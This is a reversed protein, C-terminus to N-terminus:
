EEQEYESGTIDRYQGQSIVSPVFLAVDEKDYIGQEYWGKVYDFM